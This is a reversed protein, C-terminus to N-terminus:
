LKVITLRLNEVVLCAHVHEDDHVLFTLHALSHTMKDQALLNETKLINAYKPHKQTYPCVFVVFLCVFLYVYM